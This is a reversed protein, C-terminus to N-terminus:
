ALDRYRRFGVLGKVVAVGGRDVLRLPRRDVPREHQRRLRHIPVQGINRHGTMAVADLEIRRLGLKGAAVGAAQDLMPPRGILVVWSVAGAIEHRDLAVAPLPAREPADPEFPRKGLGPGRDAIHDDELGGTGLSDAQRAAPRALTLLPFNGAGPVRGPPPEFAPEATGAELFRREIVGEVEGLPTPDRLRQADAALDLDTCALRRRGPRRLGGRAGVM